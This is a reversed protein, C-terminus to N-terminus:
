RTFSAAKASLRSMGRWQIVSDVVLHVVNADIELFVDKNSLSFWIFFHISKYKIIIRHHTCNCFTTGNHVPWIITVLVWLIVFRLLLFAAVFTLHPLTLILYLYRASANGIPGPELVVTALDGSLLKLICWILRMDKGVHVSLRLFWQIWESTTQLYVLLCVVFIFFILM